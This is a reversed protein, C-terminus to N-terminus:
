FPLYDFEQCGVAIAWLPAPQRYYECTVATGDVNWNSHVCSACGVVGVATNLASEVAAAEAQPM